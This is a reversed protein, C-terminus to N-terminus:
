AAMQNFVHPYEESSPQPPLLHTHQRKGNPMVLLHFFSTGLTCNRVKMMATGKETKPWASHLVGNSIGYMGRELELPGRNAPDRNTLYAVSGKGLDGVILNFGNQSQLDKIRLAM